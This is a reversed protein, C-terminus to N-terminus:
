QKESQTVSPQQELCYINCATWPGSVAGDGALLRNRFPAIYRIRGPAPMRIIGVFSSQFGAARFAAIGQDGFNLFMTDGVRCILNPYSDGDKALHTTRYESPALVLTDKVASSDSLDYVKLGYTIPTPSLPTHKGSYYENHVLSHLTAVTTYIYPYECNVGWEIYARQGNPNEKIPVIPTTDLNSFLTPKTPDSVDVLTVGHTDSGGALLKRGDPLQMMDM